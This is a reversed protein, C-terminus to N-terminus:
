KTQKKLQGINWPLIIKGPQNLEERIRMIGLGAYRDKVHISHAWEDYPTDFTTMKSNSSERILLKGNKEAVLLMHASFIDDKDAFILALIDGARLNGKINRLHESPVYDITITRDPKVYRLDSINKNTFFTKHSITRTLTQTSQGGVKRSIDELLWRNEPLWDAMTYHNRTRMGIIGDKYRIQQLNNFFNDWSDSISLALVHECFVMCNTQEFNVLPRTEYLAYPGDGTCTLNYPMGLFMESFYNIRGTITMKKQSVETLLRDIERNSMTYIKPVATQDQSRVPQCILLLIAILISKPPM